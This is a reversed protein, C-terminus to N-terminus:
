GIKWGDICRRKLSFNVGIRCLKRPDAAFPAAYGKDDIQRLAEEPSGDIKFEVVYVYGKTQIVMDARGDSTAREVETYFGLLKSVIYFVNQFYLESDGVVRYDTDAFM